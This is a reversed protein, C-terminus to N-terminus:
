RFIVREPGRMASMGFASLLASGVSKFRSNPVIIIDNAQISIDEKKGRMVASVDVQIEQRKGTERAERFIIGRDAAARFTTGQALSIAQRLTTGEKLPFSGPAVVEGGIFFVDAVPINIVDGPELVRNQDFRGELLGNINLKMLLYQSGSATEGASSPSLSQRSDNKQESGGADSLGAPAKVERIVFASAGHNEALGGALTILKLMSPRGEIQYVGPRRVAGQVFFSRSNIQKVTVSVQPDKLYKDRLRSAILQALGERTQSQAYIRGLYFMLFSGDANVEYIGSLEAAKEIRIELVDRPGIRYDEDPSILVTPANTEASSQAASQSPKVQQGARGASVTVIMTLLLALLSMFRRGPIPQTNSVKVM